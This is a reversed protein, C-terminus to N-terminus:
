NKILKQTHIHGYDNNSMIIKLVYTGQTLANTSFSFLNAGQKTHDRYLEKVLAGKLDYLAIFVVDAIPMEFYVKFQETSPNPFVNSEPIPQTITSIITQTCGNSDTVIVSITGAPLSTASKGNAAIGLPYWTYTYPPSGGVSLLDIQGDDGGTTSVHTVKATVAFVEPENIVINSSDMCGIYDSVKVNHIGACLNSIFATDTVLSDDEGSLYWAYTYPLMGGTVSFHAAGDCIGNCSIHSIDLSDANEIQVPNLFCCSLSATTDDGPSTLEAVWTFNTTGRAYFGATWVKGVENYKRQIGFYDGWREYGTIRDVYGEAEKLSVLESYTDNSSYLLTSIGPNRTPSTHDMGIIAQRSCDHTGTYAINPYGLDLSDDALITATFIPDSDLNDIFGHYIAALGSTTDITCSVYQIEGNEIFGGLIRADNTAMSDVHSQRGNPPVGYPVNCHGLKIDLVTNTDYQSGSINLLFISDSLLTFNKNSLLNIAPGVPYSGGQIPNLNRIYQDNYKIDSWLSTSLLSDGDYGNQKDIQWIITRSFGTQWPENDRLLNVTLFLEEETIAIAPYDTWTTDDLPNGSLAYLSWPDSPDNTSSFCVIVKSENSLRGNLFVLIFRDAIPDYMVKPDYKDNLTFESSFAHLSIPAMIVTDINIDYTFISSNYATVIKGNNSIALTNDNPRGGTLYQILTDGNPLKITNAVPFSEGIIPNLVSAGQWTKEAQQTQPYKKASKKKLQELVYRSSGPMPMELNQLSPQYDHKIDKVNLQAAKVVKIAQKSYEIKQANSMQFVLLVLGILIFKRIAEM